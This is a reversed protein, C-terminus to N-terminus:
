SRCIRRVSLVPVGPDGALARRKADAILVTPEVLALGHAIEPAAWMSNMGVAIAGLSTIAWFAIIWEPCNAALIAVRDGKRVGYREYLAAALSTAAEYHAGFSLSSDETLLYPRDGHRVSARLLEGLTRHRNAYVEMPEGRVHEIRIECPQGPATLRAVVQDWTTM